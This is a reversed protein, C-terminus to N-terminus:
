RHAVDPHRLSTELVDAFDTIERLHQPDGLGSCHPWEGGPERHRYQHGLWRRLSESVGVPVGWRELRGSPPWPLRPAQRGVRPPSALADRLAAAWAALAGADSYVGQQSGRARASLRRLLARDTHLREVGAAAGAVDGVDFLLANEEHVYQGEVLCGTFRSIVPVVGHAMAERPAITVGEWAALHVFVDMQPYIDRYLQERSKWGDFSVVLRLGGEALRALLEEEAPGSGAIRCTFPVRREHLAQLIIPLDFIRKQNAELRGVYGLRLPAGDDHAVFRDAGQVGPALGRVRDAPLSTFRRAAHALMQGSTVCLDVFDAYRALDDIYDAEYADLTVALRLPLGAAKRESAAQYVDFLRANLVIDPRVEDLVRGIGRLRGARTGSRGDIEVCNLKPYERRYREPLHFQEGRALAVVVRFGHAPLGDHLWEIVREVGGRLAHCPTCILLKPDM